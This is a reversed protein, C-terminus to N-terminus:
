KTAVAEAKGDQLVGEARVRTDSDEGRGIKGVFGKELIEILEDLRSVILDTHEHYALHANGENMLLVTAAGATYGATVTSCSLTLIVKLHFLSYWTVSLIDRSYARAM